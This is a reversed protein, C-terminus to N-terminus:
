DHGGDDKQEQKELSLPVDRTEDDCNRMDADEKKGANREDGVTDCVTLKGGSIQHMHGSTKRSEAERDNNGDAPPSERGNTEEHEGLVKPSAKQGKDAGSQMGEAAVNESLPKAVQGPESGNSSGPLEPGTQVSKLVSEHNRAGGCNLSEVGAAEGADRSDPAGSESHLPLGDQSGDEFMPLADDGAFFPLNDGGQGALEAGRANDFFPLDVGADGGMM